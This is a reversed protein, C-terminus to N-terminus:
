AVSLFGGCQRRYGRSMGAEGSAAPSFSESNFRRTVSLVEFTSIGSTAALLWEFRRLTSVDNPDPSEVRLRRPDFTLSHYPSKEGVSHPPMSLRSSVTETSNM